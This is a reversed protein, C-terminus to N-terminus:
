RGTKLIHVDKMSVYKKLVFSLPRILVSHAPQEWLGASMYHFFFINFPHLGLAGATSFIFLLHTYFEFHEWLGVRGCATSPDRCLASWIASPPHYFPSSLIRIAFHQHYFASLFIGIIFDPNCFTIFSSM